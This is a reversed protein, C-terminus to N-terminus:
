ISLFYACSFADGLGVTRVPEEIFGWDYNELQAGTAHKGFEALYSACKSAFELAGENEKEQPLVLSHEPTHFLLSKAKAALGDLECGYAALETDNLGIMDCVPFLIEQSSDRVEPKQFEGLECFVQLRPNIKKWRSIEDAFKQLRGPTQLLHVGGIFAKELSPLEADIARMFNDEIHLPVPDYSAIFRTRTEKHEFVFHHASKQHSSFSGSPAFGNEGALFIRSPHSFATALGENAYNTHVLCEVGLASAQEAANGAQGGILTRDFKMQQLFFECARTDITIEKQAGYAFCEEMQSHISPSFREIAAMDEETAARLHDLQCNFAFLARPPLAM